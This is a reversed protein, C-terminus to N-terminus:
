IASPSTGASSGLAPRFPTCLDHRAHNDRCFAIALAIRRTRSRHPIDVGKNAITILDVPIEFSSLKSAEFLSM